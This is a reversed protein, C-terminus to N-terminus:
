CKATEELKARFLQRLQELHEQGFNFRLSGDLPPRSVKGASIAWRIKTESIVMGEGRLTMLLDKLCM